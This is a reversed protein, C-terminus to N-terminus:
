HKHGHAAGDKHHHEYHQRLLDKGYDNGNPTRVVTHVHNRTPIRSRNLEIPRQHDFEIMVVPSHIRYYFVSDASTGGIWAFYTRDLHAKIEDIKVQSHGDKMNGVFEGVVDFFLKQQADNLQNVKIGAYDLVVNDKFSEAVTNTPGKTGQVIALKQQDADLSQILALGLKQEDQLVATGKFKGSEARIPESGMFVPTMVVQDGLVFFNICVHHGDLQWGWPKTKSPQGMITIFYKWEGYEEFNDIMEALTGNLKMIDKTKKLGKASLGSQLLAFALARQKEDMHEFSAGQRAYFHRNDWKRWESDDIPFVTKKRQEDSLGALFADAALRVPETSVGTSKIAFLGPEVKGDKTMGKFETALAEQIQREFRARMAPPQAWVHEFSITVSLLVGLCIVISNKM